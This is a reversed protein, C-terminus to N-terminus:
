DGIATEVIEFPSSVVAGITRFVFAGAQRVGANAREMERLRPQYRALVAFRNHKTSDEADLASIDVVRLGASKAIAQLRPDSVNMAGLRVRDGALKRSALLARDDPSTLVTIPPELPGIVQIQSRFVDFDIDPAALIVRPRPLRAWQGSLRMDRVTEVTLWTGMSHALINVQEAGRGRAAMGITEALYQRSYVSSDRDTLYGALRGQSPWSFVVLKGQFNADAKMQAARFLADRFGTNYGHVFIGVTPSGGQPAIAQQFAAKDLRRERIVVFGTAPNRHEDGDEIQGPQHDPPISVTYAAFHLATGRDNTFDRNEQPDLSRNTAVLLEVTKAGPPLPAEVLAVMNRGAGGGCGALGLPLIIGFLLLGFARSWAFADRFRM